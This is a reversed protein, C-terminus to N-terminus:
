EEKEEEAEESTEEEAPAEEESSEEEAPAEEEAAPEETAEKKPADSRDSGKQLLQVNKAKLGRDDEEGDFSVRDNDRLFVGPTVASFHVFYDKGDDGSIFGFGKKRNFFKVDGEMKLRKEMSFCFVRSFCRNEVKENIKTVVQKQKYYRELKIFIITKNTLIVKKFYARKLSLHAIILHVGIGNHSVSTVSSRM